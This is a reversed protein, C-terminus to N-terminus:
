DSLAVAFSLTNPTAPYFVLIYTRCVKVEDQIPRVLIMCERKRFASCIASRIDNKSSGRCGAKIPRLANDLYENPTLPKGDQSQMMNIQTRPASM